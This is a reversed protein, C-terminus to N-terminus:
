PIIGDPIKVEYVSPVHWGQKVAPSEKALKMAKDASSVSLISFNRAKLSMDELAAFYRLYGDKYLGFMYQMADSTAKQTEPSDAKESWKPGKKMVLVYYTKAQPEMQMSGSPTKSLGAGLGRSGWVTRIDASLLGAKVSPANEVISKMEDKTDVKFFILGWFESPDVLRAIGLLKGQAVMTKFSHENGASLEEIKKPADKTWKPGKRVVAIQYKTFRAVLDAATPAQQEVTTKGEQPAPLGPAAPAKPGAARFFLLALAIAYYHM